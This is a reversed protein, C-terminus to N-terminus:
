RTRRPYNRIGPLARALRQSVGSTAAYAIVSIDILGLSFWSQLTRHSTIWEIVEAMRQGSGVVDDVLVIRRVRLDRMARLSPHDLVRTPNNRSAQFIISACVEESGNGSATRPPPSGDSDFYPMPAALRPPALDHPARRILRAINKSEIDTKVDAPVKRAAFCAIPEAGDAAIRQISALLRAQFEERSVLVLTDLMYSAIPRDEERFQGLWLRGRESDKLLM